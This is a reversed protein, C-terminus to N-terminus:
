DMNPAEERLYEVHNNSLSFFLRNMNGGRRNKSFSLYREGEKTFKMSFMGTTMHKLKNSGVFMGSKTVQQIILFSTNKNNQNKGLNHEEFLQLLRTQNSKNTGGFFETYSDAIEAMSDVLVVDYGEKLSERLVIDPNVDAYDSMFLIELNGFKPYRRVYGYLDIANMEGSIFLCKGGNEQLNSLMDLLITSKGIGPDGTGVFNTGRMLGGESSFFQDLKTKTVMPTFLEKSFNLDNMKTTTVKFTVNSNKVPRGKRKTMTNM